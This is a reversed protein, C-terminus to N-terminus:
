KQVFVHRLHEWRSKCFQDMDNLYKNYKSLVLQVGPELKVSELTELSGNGSVGHKAGAGSFTFKGTNNLRVVQGYTNSSHINNNGGGGSGFPSVQNATMHHSCMEISQNSDFTNGQGNNIQFSSMNVSNNEKNDNNSLGVSQEHVTKVNMINTTQDISSLNPDDTFNLHNNFSIDKSYDNHSSHTFNPNTLDIGMNPGTMCNLPTSIQDSEIRDNDHDILSFSEKRKSSDINKFSPHTPKGIFM